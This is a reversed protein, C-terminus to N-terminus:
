RRFLYSIKVFFQRGDNIFSNNRVLGPGNPICVTSGPLQHCLGPVLNELDSNYGVYVATGPHPLYTVLFDFNMNKTNTLSSQAPNALLGNYQAILRLSLAPTFQYNWKSRIIHNNFAAHHTAGNVVRDLIYTNDVVLHRTLKLSMTHTIATENGTIPLLGVPVDILVIGDRIVKTNFTLRRLPSGKIVFGVAQQVYKHNSPLGAFDVPRLTDTEYAVIPALILNPKFDFVWDFNYAQLVPVGNHDWYNQTQGEPGYFVLHKGEPRWYFHFYQSLNRIDTRPVFGTDTHFNPTIDQFM